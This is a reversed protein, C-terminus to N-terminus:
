QLGSYKSFLFSPETQQLPSTYQTDSIAVSGRGVSMTKACKKSLTYDYDLDFYVVTEYTNVFM